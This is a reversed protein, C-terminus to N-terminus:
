GTDGVAQAAEKDASYDIRGNKPDRTLALAYGSELDWGEGIGNCGHGM